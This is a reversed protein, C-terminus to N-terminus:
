CYLYILNIWLYLYIQYLRAWAQSNLKFFVKAWNMQTPGFIKCWIQTMYTTMYSLLFNPNPGLTFGM